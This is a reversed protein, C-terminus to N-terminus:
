PGEKTPRDYAIVKFKFPYDRIEEQLKIAFVICFELDNLDVKELDCFLGETDWGNQKSYFIRDSPVITTTIAEKPPITTPTQPKDKEVLRV